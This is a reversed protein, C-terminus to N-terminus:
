QRRYPEDQPPTSPQYPQQPQPPPQQQSYQQQPPAQYPQQYQATFMLNYLESNYDETMKYANYIGYIWPIILWSFFFILLGKGIRGMVMQGLGPIIFSLAAMLGPSKKKQEYSMRKYNDDMARTTNLIMMRESEDIM